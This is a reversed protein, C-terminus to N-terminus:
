FDINMSHGGGRRNEVNNTKGYRNNANYYGKKRKDISNQRGDIM